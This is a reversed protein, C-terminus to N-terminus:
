GTRNYVTECDHQQAITICTLAFKTHICPFVQLNGYTVIYSYRDDHGIQLKNITGVDVSEIICEDRQIFM